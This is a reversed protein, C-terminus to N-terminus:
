VAPAPRISHVYGLRPTVRATVVQGQELGAYLQRRVLWARVEPSSGNDVAVYHETEEGESETIRLRVIEGTVEKDSFLDAAARLAFFLGGVVVLAPVVLALLLWLEAIGDVEDLGDTVVPGALWLFLAGFAAPLFRQLAAWGPHVGWHPGHRYRVDV